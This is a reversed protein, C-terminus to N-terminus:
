QDSDRREVSVGAAVMEDSDLAVPRESSAEPSAESLPRPLETAGALVAADSDIQPAREGEKAHLHGADEVAARARPRDASAERLDPDVLYGGALAFSGTQRNLAEPADGRNRAASRILDARSSAVPLLELEWGYVGDALPEGDADFLSLWPSEDPGFTYRYVTDAASVKLVAGGHAELSVFDIGVPAMQVEVLQRDGAEQAALSSAALGVFIVALTSRRLGEKTRTESM